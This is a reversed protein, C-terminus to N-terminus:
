WMYFFSSFLFDFVVFIVNSLLDSNLILFNSFYLFKNLKIIIGFADYENFKKVVAIIPETKPYKAVIYKGNVTAPKM